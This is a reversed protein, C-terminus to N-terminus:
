LGSAVIQEWKHTNTLYSFFVIFSQTALSFRKIKRLRNETEEVRAAVGTKGTNTAYLPVTPVEGAPRPGPWLRGAAAGPIAGGPLQPIHNQQLWASWVYGAILSYLLQKYLWLMYINNMTSLM